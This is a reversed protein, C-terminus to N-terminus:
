LLKTLDPLWVSFGDCSGTPTGGYVCLDLSLVNQYSHSNFLFICKGYALFLCLLFTGRLWLSLLPINKKLMLCTTYGTKIYGYKIDSYNINTKRRRKKFNNYWEAAKTKDYYYLGIEAHYIYFPFFIMSGLYIIRLRINSWWFGRFEEIYM